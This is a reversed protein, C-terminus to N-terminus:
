VFEESLSPDAAEEPPCALLAQAVARHLGEDMLGYVADAAATRGHLPGDGPAWRPQPDGLLEHAAMFAEETIALLKETFEASDDVDPSASGFRDTEGDLAMLLDAGALLDKLHRDDPEGLLNLDSVFAGFRVRLTRPSSSDGALVYTRPEPHDLSPRAADNTTAAAEM